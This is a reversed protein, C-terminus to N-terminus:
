AISTDNFRQHAQHLLTRVDEDTTPRFNAYWRGVSIFPAPTHLCVVYDVYSQLQGCIHREAVPVAIGISAPRFRRVAMVAVKMSSGTALGDDVLMVHHNTLPHMPQSQRYYNERRELELREQYTVADVARDSVGFGQVIDEDLFRIGGTAIAGMALEGHGPVGLKRVVFVDLPFDYVMAIEYGVPVGGRPLALIVTRPRDAYPALKEVLAQGAHARNKFLYDVM